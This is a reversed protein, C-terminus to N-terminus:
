LVVVKETIKYADITFTFFYVGKPLSISDINEHIAITRGTFDSVQLLFNKDTKIHIIEFSPNPFLQINFDDLYYSSLGLKKVQFSNSSKNCYGKKAAEVRYSGTDTLKIFPEKSIRYQVNNKFWVFSDASTQDIYLSDSSRKINPQILSNICESIVVTDTVECFSQNTIKCIYVGATDAKFTTAGSGDQWRVCHMNLPSSLNKSFARGQAYATDNGLFNSYIKPYITILKSVTDQSNGNSAIYRVEYLGTDSFFHSINKSTYNGEALKGKKKIQWNYTTANFTDTGWFKIKNNICNQEYM